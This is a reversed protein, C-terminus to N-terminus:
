GHQPIKLRFTSGEGIKSEVNIEWGHAECINQVYFLGLGFGKVDHLDGTSVRYFKQFLNDIDEKKIGIGNDKIDIWVDSGKLYASVAVNPAEQCYKVANDIMSHIVNSFHLKDAQISVDGNLASLSINGQGGEHIKMNESNVIHRIVQIIDFSELKLKFSDQELRALNLVKEVQDNLRNNQDTIIQSYKSLRENAKIGPDNGLVNAAIKISSIPTKFEHTMNNIFDTQLDSLKKQRLIVWMAYVFFILALLTILTFGINQWMSRLLYSQQSPYRVVFYYVLDDFKPLLQGSRQSDELRNLQCYNGYVMDQSQCDYIGYEFETSMGRAEFERLLRYELMNADIRDNINVTYTNSTKREVLNHRPLQANNYDALSQAVQYLASRVSQDFESDELAYARQLSYGQMFIIGIISVAGLIALRRIILIPM